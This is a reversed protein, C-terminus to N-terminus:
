WRSPNTLGGFRWGRRQFAEAIPDPVDSAYLVVTQAALESLLLASASAPGLAGSITNGALALEHLGGLRDSQALAAVAEDTLGHLRLVHLGSLWPSRLLASVEAPGLPGSVILELHTPQPLWQLAEGQGPCLALGVSRV